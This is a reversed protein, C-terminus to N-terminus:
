IMVGDETFEWDNAFIAEKVAEDSIQSEYDSELSRYIKKMKERAWNQLDNCLNVIDKEDCEGTYSWNLYVCNEHNYHYSNRLINFELESAQALQKQKESAGFAELILPMDVKDSTFCAGDGQSYFGSFSIEVNSFGISELEETYYTITSEAWDIGEVNIYRLHDLAAKKAEESLEAFSYVVTEIIRSM